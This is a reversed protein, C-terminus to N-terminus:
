GILVLTGGVIRLVGISMPLTLPEGLAAASAGTEGRLLVLAWANVLIVM